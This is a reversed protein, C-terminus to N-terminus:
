PGILGTSVLVDKVRGKEVVVAVQWRRSVIEKTSRDCYIYNINTYLKKATMFEGETKLTCKFNNEEMIKKAKETRTGPPVFKLISARTKQTDASLKMRNVSMVTQVPACGACFVASFLSILVANKLPSKMKM